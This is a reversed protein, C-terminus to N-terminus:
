TKASIRRGLYGNPEKIDHMRRTMDLWGGPAAYRIRGWLGALDKWPTLRVFEDGKDM